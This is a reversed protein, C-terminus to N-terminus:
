TRPPSLSARLEADPSWMCARVAKIMPIANWAIWCGNVVLLSVTHPLDTFLLAIVGWLISALMLGLVAIHYRVYRFSRRRGPVKPTPRFG